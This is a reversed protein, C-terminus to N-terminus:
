FLSLQWCVVIVRRILNCPTGPTGLLFARLLLHQLDFSMSDDRVVWLEELFDICYSTLNWSYQIFVAVYFTLHLM